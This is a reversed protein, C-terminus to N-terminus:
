RRPRFRSILGLTLLALSGPEPIVAAGLLGVNQAGSISDILTAAGTNPDVHYITAAGIADNGSFAYLDGSPGFDLGPVVLPSDDAFVGVASANLSDLDIRVLATGVGDGLSATAYLDSGNPALAIDSGGTFGTDLLVSAAGTAPDLTWLNSSDYSRAYITGDAAIELANIGLVGTNGIPSLSGDSLNVGVLMGSHSEIAIAAGTSPHIAIDGLYRGSDSLITAHPTTSFDEIRYIHSGGDIVSGVAYAVDAAALSGSALFAATALSAIYARM